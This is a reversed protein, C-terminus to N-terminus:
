EGGGWRRAVVKAPPLRADVLAWEEMEAGQFAVDLDITFWYTKLQLQSMPDAPTELGAQEASRWFDYTNRWGAAPRAGILGRARGLRVKDPAFMALLPADGPLLTNVNIASMDAAPLACLYPRLQRYIEPTVGAVARLESPDAFLTNGTRYAPEGGAYASDEAGQPGTESDSDAWDAAAAAVRRAAPEPLGIVRMLAVFQEIAAPRQVLAAAADGQVLSNLNFCNGGDRITGVALGEGPLPIRRETGNWNGALTTVYADEGALDDIRLALLDEVGLAYARAQDLAAGNMAMATSLRLREFAGAAIAAMIVVLVLVALLAAGRESRPVARSM